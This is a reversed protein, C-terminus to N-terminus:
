IIDACTRKIRRRHEHDKISPGYGYGDFVICSFGGYRARIYYMYQEVIDKYAAKKGWKIRHLLAGGDIVQLTKISPENASQVNLTLYQALQSKVPKRMFGDKFLTTPIATLEYAFFPKIDEERQLIATLRTFLISPNFHVKHKDIQIAPYLHNLAQIQDKRRISADPISLNDM